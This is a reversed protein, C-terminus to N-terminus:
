YHRLLTIAQQWKMMRQRLRCMCCRKGVEERENRAILSLLARWGIKDKREGERRRNTPSARFSAPCKARVSAPRTDPIGRWTRPSHRDEMGDEDQRTRNSVGDRPSDIIEDCGCTGGSVCRFHYLLELLFERRLRALNRRRYYLPPARLSFSLPPCKNPLPCCEESARSEEETHEKRRTLRM